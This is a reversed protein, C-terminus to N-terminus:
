NTIAQGVRCNKQLPCLNCRKKVCGRSGIIWLARDIDLWQINLQKCAALLVKQVHPVYRYYDPNKGEDIEEVNKLSLIGTLFSIRADHIDVPLLVEALNTVNAFGLGIAARLLIGGTKPGYGRFEQIRRILIRADSSSSLLTRLDSEYDSILRISNLYWGKATEKPYRTGLLVGTKEVLEVDEFGAFHTAIYNPDFLYPSKKFLDKARQYLRSSKTGHDNAVTYFLFLGHERSLPEVDEPKQNEVLDDLESLLGYRDVYAAQLITIIEKARDVDAIVGM